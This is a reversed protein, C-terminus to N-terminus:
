RNNNKTTIAAYKQKWGRGGGRRIILKSSRIIFFSLFTADIFFRPMEIKKEEQKASYVMLLISDWIFPSFWLFSFSFVIFFFNFYQNEDFRYAFLLCCRHQIFLIHVFNSNHNWREFSYENPQQTTSSGYINRWDVCAIEIKLFNGSVNRKQRVIYNRSHMKNECAVTALMLICSSGVMPRVVAVNLLISTSFIIFYKPANLNELARTFSINCVRKGNGSWRHQVVSASSFICRNLDFRSSYYDLFECIM